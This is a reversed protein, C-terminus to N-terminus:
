HRSFLGQSSSTVQMIGRKREHLSTAFSYIPLYTSFMQFLINGMPPIKRSNGDLDPANIPYEPMCQLFLALLSAAAERGSGSALHLPNQGRMNRLEADIQFTFM